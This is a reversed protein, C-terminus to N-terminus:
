TEVGHMAQAKRCGAKTAQEALSNDRNKYKGLAKQQIKQQIKKVADVKPRLLCEPIQNM